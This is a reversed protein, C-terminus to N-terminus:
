KKNEDALLAILGDALTVRWSFADHGSAFERYTVDYGKAILVDRLTRNTELIDTASRGTEFLGANLYITIPKRPSAAMERTLWQPEQNPHSWWFSGSQSLVKGFRNPYQFAIYMSGLGGYSSGSLITDKPQPDVGHRAKLWPMLEEAMFRAYDPNPPLEIGRLHKQAPNVFLARIPPILGQYILNDLITAAPGRRLYAEGDFVILLPADKALTAEGHPTYLSVKRENGLIKSAVQYHSVEGRPAGLPKTWEDSPADGFTFTSQVDFKSEGDVMWPQTNWPDRQATALIAMRQERPDADTLQPINPALQYSLRAGDPIQISLYWIDTNGIQEMESHGGYPAGFVRVGYVDGRWFFTAIASGDANPEILPTGSDVVKQWLVDLQSHRNDQAEIQSTLYLQEVFPSLFAPPQAGQPHTRTEIPKLTVKVVTDDYVGGVSLRYNQSSEVLWFVEGEQENPRIWEQVLQADEDFLRAHAVPHSSKLAGRYYMGKSAQLVLEAKEGSDLSIDSDVSSAAIAAQSACVGLALGIWQSKM